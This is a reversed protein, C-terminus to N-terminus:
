RPSEPMMLSGIALIAGIVCQMFLPIRWSLDTELYSSFYDVWQVLILVSRLASPRSPRVVSTSYGVINGTFEM